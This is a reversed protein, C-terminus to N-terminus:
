SDRPSPSTYLLCAKDWPVANLADIIDQHYSFWRTKHNDAKIGMGLVKFAPHKVYEMITLKKLSVKSDYYTEFDLTIKM